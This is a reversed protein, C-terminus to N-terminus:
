YPGGRPTSNTYGSSGYTAQGQDSTGGENSACGALLAILSLALILKKM